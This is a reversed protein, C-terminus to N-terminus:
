RIHFTQAGITWSPRGASNPIDGFRPLINIYLIAPYRCAAVQKGRIEGEVKHFEMMNSIGLFSNDLPIWRRLYRPVLILKWPSRWCIGSHHWVSWNTSIPAKWISVAGEQVNGRARWVNETLELGIAITNPNIQPLFMPKSLLIVPTQCSKSNSHAQLASYWMHPTPLRHSIAEWSKYYGSNRIYWTNVQIYMLCVHINLIGGRREKPQFYWVPM